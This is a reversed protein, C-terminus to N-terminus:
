AAHGGGALREKPWPGFHRRPRLPRCGHTRRPEVRGACSRRDDRSSGGRAARELELVFVPAASGGTRSALPRGSGPRRLRGVQEDHLQRLRERDRGGGLEHRVSGRNAARPMAAPQHGAPPLSRRASPRDSGLGLPLVHGCGAEDREKTWADMAEKRGKETLEKRLADAVDAFPTLRGPKLASVPRLITWGVGSYTLSVEGRRLTFADHEFPLRASGNDPVMRRGSPVERSGYERALAPFDAGARIREYLKRALAKDRVFFSDALRPPWRTYDARHADYYARLEDDTLKVDSVVAAFIANELLKARMDARVRELTVGAESLTHDFEEAGQARRYHELAAEVEDDSVVVGLEDANLEDQMRRVLLQLAQATLNRYKASGPEPFSRDHAEYSARVEALFQEYEAGTLTREGVRAIVGNPVDDDGPASAGCASGAIAAIAM